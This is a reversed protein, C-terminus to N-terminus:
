LYMVGQEKWKAIIAQAKARKQALKEEPTMALQRAVEAEKAAKEAAPAERKAKYMQRDAKEKARFAATAADEKAERRKQFAEWERAAEAPAAAQAAEAGEIIGKAAERLLARGAAWEKEAQTPEKPSPAISAPNSAPPSVIAAPKAVAEVVPAVPELQESTKSQRRQAKQVFEPVVAPKIFKALLADNGPKLGMVNALGYNGAPIFKVEKKAAKAPVASLREEPIQIGLAKEMRNLSIFMLIAM